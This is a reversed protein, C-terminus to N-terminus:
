HHRTQNLLFTHHLGTFFITTLHSRQWSDLTWKTLIDNMLYEPLNGSELHDPTLTNMMSLNNMTSM